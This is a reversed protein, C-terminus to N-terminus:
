ENLWFGGGFKVVDYEYDKLLIAVNMQIFDKYKGKILNMITHIDNLSLNYKKIIRSKGTDQIKSLERILKEKKQDKEYSNIEKM